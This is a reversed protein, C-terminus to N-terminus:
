TYDCQTSKKGCLNVYKGNSRIKVYFAKADDSHLEFILNSAFYNAGNECNLATTSGKQYLEEICAASSLNLGLHLAVIDTDHGSLFTWKLAYTNPLKTRLDFVSIIKEIKGSNFMLSNNTLQSIYNYWDALHFVNLRDEQTFNQPLPRGLYNDVNVVDLVRLMTYFTATKLSFNFM